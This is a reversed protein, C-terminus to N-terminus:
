SKSASLGTIGEISVFSANKKPPFLQISTPGIYLSNEGFDLEAGINQLFRIGINMTHQLNKIVLFRQLNTAIKKGKYLTFQGDVTGLVKIVNSDSSTVQILTERLQSQQTPKCHFFFARFIIGLM